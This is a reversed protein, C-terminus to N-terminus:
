SVISRQGTRPVDSAISKFYFCIQTWGRGGATLVASGANAAAHRAAVCHRRQQQAGAGAIARREAAFEGAATSRHSLRVSPCVSLCVSLCVSPRKMSGARVCYFTKRLTCDDNQYNWVMVTESHQKIFNRGYIKNSFYILVKANSIALGPFRCQALQIPASENGIKVEINQWLHVM